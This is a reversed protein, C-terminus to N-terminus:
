FSQWCTTTFLSFLSFTDLATMVVASGVPGSKLTLDIFRKIDSFCDVFSDQCGSDIWPAVKVWAWIDTKIAVLSLLYKKKFSGWRRRRKEKREGGKETQWWESSHSNNGDDPLSAFDQLSLCDTEWAPGGRVFGVATGVVSTIANWTNRQRWSFRSLFCCWRWCGAATRSRSPLLVTHSFHHDQWHM